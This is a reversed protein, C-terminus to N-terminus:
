AAEDIPVRNVIQRWAKGKKILIVVTVMENKEKWRNEFVYENEHILQGNRTNKLFNTTLALKDLNEVHDDLTLLETERIFLFDEHHIDRFVEKDWNAFVAKYKQSLTM